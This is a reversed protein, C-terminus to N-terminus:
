SYPLGAVDGRDVVLVHLHRLRQSVAYGSRIYEAFRWSSVLLSRKQVPSPLRTAFTARRGTRDWADDARNSMMRRTTVEALNVRM